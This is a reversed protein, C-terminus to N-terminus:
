SASPSLSNPITKFRQPQSLTFLHKQSNILQWEFSVTLFPTDYAVFDHKLNILSFTLLVTNIVTFM